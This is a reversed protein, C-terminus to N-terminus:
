FENATLGPRLSNITKIPGKTHAKYMQSCFDGRAQNRPHSYPPSAAWGGGSHQTDCHICETIKRVKPLNKIGCM